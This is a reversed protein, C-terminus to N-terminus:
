DKPPATPEKPQGTKGTNGAPPSVNKTDTKSGPDGSCGGLFCICVTLVCALALRM